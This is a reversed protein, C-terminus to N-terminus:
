ENQAATLVGSSEDAIADAEALGEDVRETRRMRVAVIALGGLALALVIPIAVRLERADLDLATALSSGLYSALTIAFGVASSLLVGSVRHWSPGHLGNETASALAGLTLGGLGFGATALYGAALEGAVVAWVGVVVPALVMLATVAAFPLSWALWQAKRRGSSLGAAQHAVQRSELWSVLLGGAIVVAAPLLILGAVFGIQDLVEM